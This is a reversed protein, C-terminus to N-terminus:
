PCQHPLGPSVGNIVLGAVRMDPNMFDAKGVPITAPQTLAPIGDKRVGGTRIEKLNILSHDYLFGPIVPLRNDIESIPPIGRIDGKGTSGGVLKAHYSKIIHRSILGVIALTFGLVILIVPLNLKHPLFGSIETRTTKGSLELGPLRTTAELAL